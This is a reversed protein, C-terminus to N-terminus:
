ADDAGISAEHERRLMRVITGGGLLTGLAALPWALLRPFRAGLLSLALLGAGIGGSLAREYQDLDEGRAAQVAAGVRAVTASSPANGQLPRRRRDYREARTQAREPKPQEGFRVPGPGRTPRLKIERAHALDDEYMAEMQAAFRPDEVLIDAEWNTLLGTVNLNTSGVRAWCGDGVSTKAHMMVGTYEWIRVGAELFPRYGARSLAGVIPLDNTSPLLIRVDVGANAAVILTERLQPVALFYADAIWLRSRASALALQMVGLMRMRGPEEVIVRVAIDGASAMREVSPQEDDPLADGTLNWIRAFARELDAVAPGHVRVATDRYPLNTVPSRELWPDAICVGGISGYVGDVAVLKRHDRNIAAFPAGVVLSNVARVHVGEARMRNWFSLPVDWSGFWDYLVRVAVGARAREILAETFQKGIRDNPKFIYNELHIWRQARSIQNLWDDFTAPGNQLLQITNGQRLEANSIRGLARQIGPDRPLTDAAVGAWISSRYTM